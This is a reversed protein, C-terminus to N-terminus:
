KKVKPFWPLVVVTVGNSTDATLYGFPDAVLPYVTVSLRNDEVWLNVDHAGYSDWFDTYDCHKNKRMWRSAMKECFRVLGVSLENM